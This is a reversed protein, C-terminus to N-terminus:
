QTQPQPQRQLRFSFASDSDLLVPDDRYTPRRLILLGQACLLASGSWMISGLLFRLTRQRSVNVCSVRGACALLPTLPAASCTVRGRRQLRTTASSRHIGSEHRSGRRDLRLHAPSLLLPLPEHQSGRLGLCWAARRWSGGRAGAIHPSDDDLAAIYSVGEQSVVFQPM